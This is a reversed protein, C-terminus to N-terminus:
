YYQHAEIANKLAEINQEVAIGGQKEVVEECATDKYVIAPTGCAQAEITTLGFTEEKSPNVFLDAATYIEALEQTSNTRGIAIIKKSIHKMQKEDLGVLVIAYREDLLEALKIFDFLGKREGWMSAVGLIVRKNKLSFRERFNSPTPKFVETNITNYHVEVPYEKMFSQKILGALWNSPAILTMNAVGTFALRKRAFNNDANDKMLSSPYLRKQPCRSCHTKWQQCGVFAFHSCHGTFAWCDHLTWKVQMNPRSKIWTFLKEVHIFYGHINHLWVIDPDYEDAWKLFRYTASASGFGHADLVRTMLAHLKNDFGSGIRVAYKQYKEPVTERGYAIKVEHGHAEIEM